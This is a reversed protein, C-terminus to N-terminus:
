IPRLDCAGQLAANAQDRGRAGHSPGEAVRLLKLRARRSLCSKMHPQLQAIEDTGATGGALAALM